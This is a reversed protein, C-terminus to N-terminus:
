NNLRNGAGESKTFAKEIEHKIQGEAWPPILCRGELSKMELRVKAGSTDFM